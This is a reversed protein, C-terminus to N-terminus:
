KTGWHTPLIELDADSRWGGKHVIRYGNWITGDTDSFVNIREAKGDLSVELTVRMQGGGDMLFKEVIEVVMIRLKEIRIEEFHRLNVRVSQAIDEPWVRLSGM